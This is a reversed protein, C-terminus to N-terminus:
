APEPQAPEQQAPEEAKKEEEPASAEQGTEIISFVSETESFAPAELNLNAPLADAATEAAFSMLLEKICGKARLQPLLLIFYSFSAPTPQVLGVAARIPPNTRVM